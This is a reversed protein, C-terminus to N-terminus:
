LLSVAGAGGIREATGGVVAPHALVGGASVAVLLSMGVAAAAAAAPCSAAQWSARTWFPVLQRQQLLLLLMGAAPRVLCVRGAKGLPCPSHWGAVLLLLQHQHHQHHQQQRYLLCDLLLLLLHDRNRGAMSHGPATWSHDAAVVTTQCNPGALGWVVRHM